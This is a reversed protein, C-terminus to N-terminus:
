EEDIFKKCHEIFEAKLSPQEINHLYFKGSCILWIVRDVKFPSISSDHKRCEESIQAVCEFASYPNNDCFGLGCLVDMIHVDPKSFEIFGLDKLVNCALAFGFGSIKEKMTLALFIRSFVNKDYADVYSYFEKASKFQSLFKASDIVAGCWRWWLSQHKSKDDKPKAFKIKKQLEDFLDDRNKWRVLVAKVDFNCLVKKLLDRRSNFKVTNPLQQYDQACILFREYIDDISKPKASSTGFYAQLMNESVAKPLKNVLFSYAETYFKFFDFSRNM